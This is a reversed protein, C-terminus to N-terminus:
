KAMIALVASTVAVPPPLGVTKVMLLAVVLAVGVQEPQPKELIDVNQYVRPGAPHRHKPCSARPVAGGAPGGGSRCASTGARSRSCRHARVPALRTRASSRG